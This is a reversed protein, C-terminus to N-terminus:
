IFYNQKPKAKANKKMKLTLTVKYDQLLSIYYEFM